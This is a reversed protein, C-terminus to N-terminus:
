INKWFEEPLKKEKTQLFKTEGAEVVELHKEIEARLQCKKRDKNLSFFRRCLEEEPLIDPNQQRLKNLGSILRLNEERMKKTMETFKTKQDFKRELIKKKWKNVTNTIV